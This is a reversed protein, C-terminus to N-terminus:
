KQKPFAGYFHVVNMDKPINKGHNGLLYWELHVGHDPMYALLTDHKAYYKKIAEALSEFQQSYHDIAKLSWPSRPNSRHMKDDYEQVYVAMFDYKDEKILGIAKEVAEGDYPLSYYDMAKGRFILDMSQNAVSVICCKKGARILADFLSDIKVVPKEYRTIGHQEPTAGTYISAFCVPTKPPIMSLMNVTHPAYKLVPAFKAEYKEYIWRGIADPNFVVVRDFAAGDIEKILKDYLGDIETVAYEPPEIDMFRALTKAISTLPIKHFEDM